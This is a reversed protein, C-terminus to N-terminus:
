ALKFGERNMATRLAANGDVTLKDRLTPFLEDEEERMHSELLARLRRATPLWDPDNKALATLSYLHQKVYGHENNLKDADEVLGADRLAPYIANEEQFAHKGLAHKIQTLLLSRRATATDETAEVLDFLALTASHEATLAKDWEGAIVTPMQVITKRVINLMAGALFAVGALAVDRSRIRLKM